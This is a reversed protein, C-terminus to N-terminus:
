DFVEVSGSNPAVTVDVTDGGSELQNNGSDYLTVVFESVVGAIAQTTGEGSLLTKSPDAKTVQCVVLAGSEKLHQFSNTGFPKIMATL